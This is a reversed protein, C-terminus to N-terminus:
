GHWTMSGDTFATANDAKRWFLLGRTTHQEINGNSLNLSASDLCEGVVNDPVTQALTAFGSTIQCQPFTSIPMTQAAASQPLVGILGFASAATIAAWRPLLSRM